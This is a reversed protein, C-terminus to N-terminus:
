KKENKVSEFGELDGLEKEIGLYYYGYPTLQYENPNIKKLINFQLLGQIFFKFKHPNNYFLGEIQSSLIKPPEGETEKNNILIYKIRRINISEYFWKGRDSIGREKEKNNM